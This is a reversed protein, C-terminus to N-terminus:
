RSSEATGASTASPPATWLPATVVWADTTTSWAALSVWGATYVDVDVDFPLREFSWERLVRGGRGVLAARDIEDDVGRVSAHFRWPLRDIEGLPEIWAPERGAWEGPGIGAAELHAWPGTGACLAGRVIAREIEPKDWVRRDPVEVWAMPGAPHVPVGADLWDPWRGWTAPDGDELRVLTPWTRLSAPAQDLADMWALDVVSHRGGNNTGAILAEAPGMRRVDLAGNAALKGDAAWPWALISWGDPSRLTAGDEVWQPVPVDDPVELLSVDAEATFVAGALGRRVAEDVATTDSRRVRKDRGSPIGLAIALDGVIFAPSLDVERTITEGAVVTTRLDLPVVDHGAEVHIVLDGEPLALSAGEPPISVEVRQGAATTWSASFPRESVKQFTPALTVTGSDGIDLILGEGPAVRPSPARTDHVAMVGDIDPDIPLDFAGDVVRVRGALEDGRFMLIETASKATGQLRRGNPHREPWVRQTDGIWLRSIESLIMASGLDQEIRGDWGIAVRDDALWGDILAQDGKGHVYLGNAGELDLWSQDPGFRWTYEGRGAPTATQWPLASREGRFTIWDEGIEMEDPSIPAGDILPLIEHLRDAREWPAGDVLGGGGVSPLTASANPHRLFYHVLSNAFLLDASRGEGSGMLQARCRVPGAYHVGEPEPDATCPVAAV